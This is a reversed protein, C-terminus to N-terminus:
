KKWREYKRFEVHKFESIKVISGDVIKERVSRKTTAYVPILGVDFCFDVMYFTAGFDGQILVFDGEQSNESLWGILPKLYESLVIGEAPVNSWIKQLADPLYFFREIGKEKLQDIQESTLKHSFLLFISKPM